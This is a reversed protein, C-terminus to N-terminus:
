SGMGSPKMMGHFQTEYLLSADHVMMWSVM